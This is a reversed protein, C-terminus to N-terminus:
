HRVIVASKVTQELTFEESSISDPILREGPSNPDYDDTEEELEEVDEEDSSLSKAISKLTKNASISTSIDVNLSTALEELLEDSGESNMAESFLEMANITQKRKFAIGALVLYKKANSM